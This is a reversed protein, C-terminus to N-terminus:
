DRDQSRRAKIEELIRSPGYVSRVGPTVELKIRSRIRVDPHLFRVVHVNGLGYAWLLLEFGLMSPQVLIGGAPADPFFPLLESQSGNVYSNSILGVAALGVLTHQTILDGNEAPGLEMGVDFAERPIFLTLKRRGETDTPLHDTGQFVEKILKYIVFHLRLQYTSLNAILAAFRAGRDDRGNESRSSALVGGFYDAWLGDECFAGEALVEKLVRPSIGGPTELKDGLLESARDFISRLNRLSRAAWDKLGTGIYDATPGLLKEIVKASGLLALGSGIEM